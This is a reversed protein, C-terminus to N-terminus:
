DDEVLEYLERLILHTPSYLKPRSFVSVRAWQMNISEAGNVFYVRNSGHTGINCICLHLSM